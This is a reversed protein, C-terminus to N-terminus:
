ATMRTLKFWNLHIPHVWSPLPTIVLQLGGWEINFNFICVIKASMISDFM